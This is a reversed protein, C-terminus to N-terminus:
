PASAVLSGHGVEAHNERRISDFGADRLWSEHSPGSHAMGEGSATTLFYVSSKAAQFGGTELDDSMITWVFLHGGSRLARRAKRYLTKVRSPSFIETVHSLLVGDCDPWTEEFIDTPLLEIRGRVPSHTLQRSAIDCVSPRELITVFLDPYRECLRAATSGDGGGVDLLHRTTSLEDFDNMGPAVKTYCHLADQFLQELEPHGQLREYLTTGAGPFERLGVNTQTRLSETFHTACPRQVREAFRVFPLMSTASDAVLLKEAHSLNYYNRSEPDRRILGATCCGLLLIRASYTELQLAEAVDQRSAGNKASLFSFLDLECATVLCQTHVYANLSNLLRNWEDATVNNM